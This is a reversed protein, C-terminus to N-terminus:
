YYFFADNRNTIINDNSSLWIIFQAITLIFFTFFLANFGILDSILGNMFPLVINPFAYIAYLLSYETGNLKYKMM